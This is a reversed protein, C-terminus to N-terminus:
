IWHGPKYKLILNFFFDRILDSIKKLEVIPVVKLPVRPAVIEMSSSVSPYTKYKIADNNIVLEYPGVQAPPLIAGPM